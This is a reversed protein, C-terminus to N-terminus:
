IACPLRGCCAFTVILATVVVRCPQRSTFIQPHAAERKERGETRGGKGEKRDRKKGENMEVRGGVAVLGVTTRPDLKKLGVWRMLHSVWGLAIWRLTFVKSGYVLGVWLGYGM